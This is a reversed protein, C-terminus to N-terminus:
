QQRPWAGPAARERLLTGSRANRRWVSSGSIGRLTDLAQAVPNQGAFDYQEFLAEFVPRTLVHQAMMHIASDRDISENISVKLEKHFAGFWERLAANNPRQAPWRDADCPPLLHRGRGQGMDGLIKPRWMARRDQCLNCRAAPGATSIAIPTCKEGDSGDGM